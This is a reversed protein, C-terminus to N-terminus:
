EAGTLWRAYVGSADDVLLQALALRTESSSTPGFAPIGAGNLVPSTSLCLEDVEGADLFQAVLSPGGECVISALGLSRLAAVIAAPAIRGDHGTIEVIEATVEGLSERVRAAAAPPCLVILRGPEVPPVIGHGKLAGSATVIALRANKPLVYGEKRLSEAGILVVDSLERIVGLIRRDAPNTITESTGDAGGASGSVTVVLNIRLWNPRPHAYLELLRARTAPDEIDLPEAGGPFVRTLIM